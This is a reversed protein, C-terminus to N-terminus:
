PRAPAPIAPEGPAAIGTCQAPPLLDAPQSQGEAVFATTSGPATVASTQGKTAVADGDKPFPCYLGQRSVTSDPVVGGAPPHVGSVSAPVPTFGRGLWVAREALESRVGSLDAFALAGGATAATALGAILVTRRLM